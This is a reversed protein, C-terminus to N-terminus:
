TELSLREEQTGLVELHSRRSSDERVIKVGEQKLYRGLLLGGGPRGVWLPNGRPNIVVRTKRGWCRSNGMDCVLGTQRRHLCGLMGTKTAM